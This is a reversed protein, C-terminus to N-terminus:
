REAQKGTAVNWLKITLDLRGSAPTKGDPSFAV